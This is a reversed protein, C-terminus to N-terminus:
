RLIQKEGEEKKYVKKWANKHVKETTKTINSFAIEHDSFASEYFQWLSFHQMVNM